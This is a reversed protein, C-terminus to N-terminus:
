GHWREADPRRLYNPRVLEPPGPQSGPGLTCIHRASLRHAPDSAALVEAGQAEIEARFRVSGDGAALSGRILDAGFTGALEEPPCVRPEGPGEGADIAAFM